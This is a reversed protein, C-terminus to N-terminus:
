KRRNKNWVQRADPGGAGKAGVAPRQMSQLSSATKAVLRPKAAAPQVAANMPSAKDGPKQATPVPSASKAMFSKTVSVKSFTTPKKVSNTREHHKGDQKVESAGVRSGETDSNVSNDVSGASGDEGHGSAQSAADHVGNVLEDPGVRGQEEATKVPLVSSAEAATAAAEGASPKAASTVAEPKADAQSTTANVDAAHENAHKPTAIDSPTPADITSSASASTHAIDGSGATTTNTQNAAVDAPAPASASESNNVVHHSVQEAM